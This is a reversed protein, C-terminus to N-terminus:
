LKIGQIRQIWFGAFRTLVTRVKIDFDAACTIREEGVCLSFALASSCRRGHLPWVRAM